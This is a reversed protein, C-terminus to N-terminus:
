LGKKMKAFQSAGGLATGAAGFIGSVLAGSAKARQANAEGRYNWAQIDLGKVTDAGQQYIQGVDEAAIMRADRSVDLATGFNLDVGNAAMAAQQAGLVQASQRYRRQAEIATNEEARKAQDASLRANQDAITAAYNAQNAQGIGSIVSGVSSVATTAALLFPALAPPCM